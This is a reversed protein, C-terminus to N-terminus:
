NVVGASSCAASSIFSDGSGAEIWLWVGSVVVPSYVVNHYITEGLANCCDLVTGVSSKSTLQASNSSRVMCSRTTANPGDESTYHIAGEATWPGAAEQSMTAGNASYCIIEGAVPVQGSASIALVSIGFLMAFVVLPGKM